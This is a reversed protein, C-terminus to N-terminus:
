NIKERAFDANKTVRERMDTPIKGERLLRECADLSEQYACAYYANVSFEDLLGYEYIWNEVFLAGDPPTLCLGPKGFEYRSWHGTTRCLRCAGHIAEARHPAVQAARQYTAFITEFPYSFAEQLQAAHYLSMFVEDSSFGLEARKLYAQLAKEKEDCDRYSQALYFQYRSQMFPDNETQLAACLIEADRRFTQSDRQRAGEGYTHRLWLGELLARSGADDCTLFEHLVGRWRWPLAARVIQTRNHVITPGEIIRLMYSDAQLVPMEFEQEFELVDDADIWLVYEGHPQALELAESRNHAFDRWTREHLEGPVDAMFTRIADQTGDTSGTDVIVWYDIIPRVSALCRAIVPAENKVIMNLCLIQHSAEM